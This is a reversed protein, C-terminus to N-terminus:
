GPRGGKSARVFRCQVFKAAPNTSTLMPPLAFLMLGGEDLVQSFQEAVHGCDCRHEVAGQMVAVYELTSRATPSRFRCSCGAALSRLSLSQAVHM